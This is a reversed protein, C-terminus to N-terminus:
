ALQPGAALSAKAFICARGWKPKALSPGAMWAKPVVRLCAHIAALARRKADLTKVCLRARLARGKRAAM